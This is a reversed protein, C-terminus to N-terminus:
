KPGVHVLVLQPRCLFRLRPAWAREMGIGRSVVLHRGDPLVTHGAAQSRPVRSFTLLPGIFPLRVQGGHTHGAVMLEAPVEGLTFDPAHGLVVHFKASPEVRLRPDFSERAPLATLVLPGLDHTAREAPTVEIRTGDFLEPWRDHGFENNGGVAFAGLRPSWDAELLLTRLARRAEDLEGRPVQVYDGALLILDPQAEAVRGFVRREYEGPADTQIDALVAITFPADVEDSRLEIETVELARPEIVFADIGITVLLSAIVGSAVAWGRRGRRAAFSALAVAVIPGGVFILVALVSLVAFIM